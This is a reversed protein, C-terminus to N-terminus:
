ICGRRLVRRELHHRIASTAIHCRPCVQINLAQRGIREVLRTQVDNLLSASVLVEKKVMRGNGLAPILKTETEGTLVRRNLLAIKLQEITCLLKLRKDLDVNQETLRLYAELQTLLESCLKNRLLM